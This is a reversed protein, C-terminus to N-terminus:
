HIGACFPRGEAAPFSDRAGVAVKTSRDRHSRALTVPLAAGPGAIRSRRCSGRCVLVPAVSPKAPAWCTKICRPSNALMRRSTAVGAEGYRRSTGVIRGTASPPFAHLEVCPVGGLQVSRRESVGASPERRELRFHVGATSCPMLYAPRWHGRSGALVIAIAAIWLLPRRRCIQM